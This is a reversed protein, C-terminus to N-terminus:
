VINENIGVYIDIAETIGNNILKYYYNTIPMHSNLCMYKQIENRVEYLECYNYPCRVKLANALVVRPKYVYYENSKFSGDVPIMIEVDIIPEDVGYKNETLTFITNGTKKLGLLPLSDDLHEILRGLKKYTTRTKYSLLSEASLYQKELIEM